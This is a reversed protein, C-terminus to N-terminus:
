VGAPGASVYFELAINDPDKVSLATGYDTDIIESHAIGVADLHNAWEIVAERDACAFGVHDLGPRAPDFPEALPVRHQTLGVTLGPAPRFIRRVLSESSLTAVPESGWLTQYFPESVELDSVTLAIHHIGSCTPM